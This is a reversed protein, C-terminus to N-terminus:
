LAKFSAWIKKKLMEFIFYNETKHLNHSCFFIHCCIKKLGERKNSNKSGPDPIFMGSGCCQLLILREILAALLHLSINATIHIRFPKKRIRIRRKLQNRIRIRNRILCSNKRINKFSSLSSFYPHDSLHTDNCVTLAHLKTM